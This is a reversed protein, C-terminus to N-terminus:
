VVAAPSDHRRLASSPPGAVSPAGQTRLEVHVDVDLGGIEVGIEAAETPSATRAESVVPTEEVRFAQAGLVASYRSTLKSKQKQPVPMLTPPWCSPSALPPRILFSSAASSLRTWCPPGACPDLM